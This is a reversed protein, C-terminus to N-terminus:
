EDCLRIDAEKILSLIHPRNGHIVACIDDSYTFVELHELKPFVSEGIEIKKLMVDLVLEKLSQFGSIFVLHDDTDVYSGHNLALTALFPLKGLKNIFENTVQTKKLYLRTLNPLYFGSSSKRSNPPQVIVGKLRMEQLRPLNSDTFLNSIIIEGQISLVVLYQLKCVATLANANRATLKWIYLSELHLMKELTTREWGHVDPPEISELTQLHRLHGLKRPLVLFGFVHRLERIKWFEEPLVTVNTDRVDLTQLGAIKGISPPIRKLSCSTIGLYQLHVVNGIDSPLKDGIELGHLKIVRLFESGQLLQRIASEMVMLEKSKSDNTHRSHHLCPCAQNQQDEEEERIDDVKESYSLISRLRPLPNVLAVYKDRDGQLSLRRPNSLVSIDNGRHVEVFRAEQAERLLYAHVKSQIAVREDGSAQDAAPALNVLRRAILEKLYHEGVKEMGKGDKPGLFGEAVWM